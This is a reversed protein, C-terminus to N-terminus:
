VAIWRNWGCLGGGRDRPRLLATTKESVSLRRRHQRAADRGGSPVRFSNPSNSGGM